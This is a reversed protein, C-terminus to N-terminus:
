DGIYILECDRVQGDTNYREGYYICNNVISVTKGGEEKKDIQAGGYYYHWNESTFEEGKYIASYLFTRDVIIRDTYDALNINNDKKFTEITEKLEGYEIFSPLRVTIIANKRGTESGLESARLFCKFAEQYRMSDFEGIQLLGYGNIYLWGLNNYAIAQYYGDKQSAKKYWYIASSYDGAQIYKEATLIQSKEDGAKAKLEIDVSLCNIQPFVQILLGIISVFFVLVSVILSITQLRNNTVDAARKM